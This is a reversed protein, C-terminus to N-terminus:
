DSGFEPTNGVCSSMLRIPAPRGRLWNDHHIRAVVGAEVEAEVTRGLEILTGLVSRHVGRWYALTDVHLIVAGCRGAGREKRGGKGTRGSSM